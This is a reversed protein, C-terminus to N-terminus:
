QGATCLDAIVTEAAGEPDRGVPQLIVASSHRGWSRKSYSGGRGNWLIHVRGSPQHQYQSAGMVYHPACASSAVHVPFPVYSGM